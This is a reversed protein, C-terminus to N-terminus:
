LKNKYFSRSFEVWYIVGFSLLLIATTLGPTYQHKTFAEIIHSIEFILVVGLILQGIKTIVNKKNFTVLVTILLLIYLFVQVISFAVIPSVNAIESFQLTFSDTSYFM